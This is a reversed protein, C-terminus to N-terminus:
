GIDGLQTIQGFKYSHVRIVDGDDGIVATGLTMIRDVPLYEFQNPVYPTTAFAGQQPNNLQLVRTELNVRGGAVWATFASGDVDEGTVPDQLSFSTTNIVTIKFRKNNIQDMGRATPMDPGLDTIRVLQNNQYGHVAATTIVVPDATTAASILARFATEGGSTDAVTFGNTTPNLFNHATASGNDVIVQMQYCEAADTDERFWRVIPLNAATAAWQTINVVEMMDPPFNLDLNYAAGGSILRFAESMSQGQQLDSM